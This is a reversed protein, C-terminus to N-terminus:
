FLGKWVVRFGGGGRFVVPGIEARSIIGIAGGGPDVPPCLDPPTITLGEPNEQVCSGPGRTSTGAYDISRNHMIWYIGSQAFFEFVMNGVKAVEVDIEVRPGFGQAWVEGSKARVENTQSFTFQYREVGLRAPDNGGNIANGAQNQGATTVNLVNTEGKYSQAFWNMSPRLHFNYNGVPLTLDIGLGAFVSGNVIVDQRARVECTGATFSPFNFPNAQTPLTACSRDFAANEAAPNVPNRNLTNLSNTALHENTFPVSGGGHIFFRPKWASDGMTPAFLMAQAESFAFRISNPRNEGTEAFGPFVDGRVEQSHVGFGISLAPEWGRPAINVAEEEEALAPLALLCGVACLGLARRALHSRHNRAPGMM